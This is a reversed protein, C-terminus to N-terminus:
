ENEALKPKLALNAMSMVVGWLAWVLPAPRVMGWTVADSLGHFALAIQGCFLGAGIGAIWGARRDRMGARYVKWAMWTALMWTALWGTFGIFGLDLFIQIYLNHAHPLLGPETLSLPVLRRVVEEFAGMGIGTFPFDKALLLARSWLAVREELTGVSTGSLLADMLPYTGAKYVVIGAGMAAVVLFVWGWRWRMSTFIALALALALLAGRSLTLVLIGSILVGGIASVTRFLWSKKGWSAFMGGAALPFILILSGAMVNPNVRDIFWPSVTQFVVRFMGFWKTVAWEVSVLAFMALGIGIALMGLIAVQMRKGTVAWNVIAYYLLIGSLLRYVQLRTVEPLPTIWLTVPLVLVVLLISWDASTRISLHRYGVWRIIWFVIGAVICVPLLRVLVMSALVLSSIVWIEQDAIKRNLTHKSDM